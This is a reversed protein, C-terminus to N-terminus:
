DAYKVGCGYAQTSTVPVPRGAALANLASRVHNESKEIAAASPSSDSDIAGMYAIRGEQDIVFMHPTTKAGYLRGLRGDTDPVYHSSALNHQGIYERADKASLTGVKGASGSNVTIWIVGRATAEAQLKQMNGSEYHKKVFPCAPNHWELVVTRGKLNESKLATGEIDRVTFAPATEGVAPLAAASFPLLLSAALALLTNRM